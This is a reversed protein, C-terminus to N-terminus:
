DSGEGPDTRPSDPPPSGTDEDGPEASFLKRPWERRALVVNLEAGYLTLQAGLHLWALIGIVVAFTGYAGGSHSIHNIYAGGLLQLLLWCLGAFAAGPRLQKWSPNASSLLKFALLFLVFDVAYSVVIGLVGLAPGSVGGSLLGSAGTGIVFLLGLLGLLMLGRIKSAVFGARHKRPVNWVVDLANAAANTVGLGGYLSVVVGIVLGATSGKLQSHSISQGIVPFQGLVSKKVSALTSPDGALVFGLITVFVLLLPFLSLFAFYAVLAAQNAAQDDSYKKVVAIPVALWPQRQQFADLRKIPPPIDM